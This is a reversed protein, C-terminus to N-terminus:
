VRAAGRMELGAAACFRTAEERPIRFPCKGAPARFAPLAGKAIWTRVCQPTVGLAESLEAVTLFTSM